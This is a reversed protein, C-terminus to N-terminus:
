EKISVYADLIRNVVNLAKAGEGGNEVVVAFAIGYQEDDPYKAFGMFWSHDMGTENQATGTKGAVILDDRSVRRGTGENVVDTMMSELTDSTEQDLLAETYQPLHKNKIKGSKSMSYDFIYPKMLIGDNAITSAIMAMHLPSVLTKGQGIYTAGKEFPVDNVTLKFQSSASEMDFPLAVNFGLKEATKQLEKAGLKETLKVFYTNCSKTFATQLNVDGHITGDYCQIKFDKGQIEGTCEHHFDMAADKMKELYAAATIVKFTSGPPYLGQTSRNVLPSNEDDQILNEWEEVLDNPDFTPNAYMVRIKGTTPELVVAAGKYDELGREAAKQLRDDLTLVVDRGVFKKNQFANEFISVFNYDPYLLETNALAEAGSKGRQSYGVAHAYRKGYPYSREGGESTALLNQNSDYIDGRIMDSELHDLRRNNPHVSIQSRKSATFYTLYGVLITFLVVFFITIMYILKKKSKM